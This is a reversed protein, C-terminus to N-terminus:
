SPKVATQKVTTTLFTSLDAADFVLMGKGIQVGIVHCKCFLRRVEGM